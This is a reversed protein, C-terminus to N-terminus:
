YIPKRRQRQAGTNRVYALTYEFAELPDYRTRYHVYRAFAATEARDREGPPNSTGVLDLLERDLQILLAAGQDREAEIELMPQGLRLNGDGSALLAVVFSGGYRLSIRLAVHLSLEAAAASARESHPLGGHIHEHTRLLSM